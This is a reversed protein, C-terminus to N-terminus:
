PKVTAPRVGLRRAHEARDEADAADMMREIHSYGPPSAPLPRAEIWGNASPITRASGGKVDSAPQPVGRRHDGVIGRVLDDSVAAAMERAASAPMCLGASYDHPGPLPGSAAPKPGAKLEAVEATLTAIQERMQKVDENM